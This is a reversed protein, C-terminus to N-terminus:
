KTKDQKGKAKNRRALIDTGCPQVFYAYLEAMEWVAVVMVVAGIGTYYGLDEGMGPHVRQVVAGALRALPVTICGKLMQNGMLRHFRLQRFRAGIFIAIAWLFWPAAFGVSFVNFHPWSSSPGLLFGCSAMILMLLLCCYGNWRHWRAAWLEGKSMRVVLWKQVLASLLLLAGGFSHFFLLLPPFPSVLTMRLGADRSVSVAGEHSASSFGFVYVIWVVTAPLLFPGIRRNYFDLSDENLLIRM